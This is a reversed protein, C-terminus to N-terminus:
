PEADFVPTFARITCPTPNTHRIKVRGQGEWSDDVPVEVNGTFLNAMGDPSVISPIRVPEWRGRMLSTIELGTTDTELLSLIM